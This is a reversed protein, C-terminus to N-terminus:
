IVFKLTFDDLYCTSFMIHFVYHGVDDSCQPVGPKIVGSM